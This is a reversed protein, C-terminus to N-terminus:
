EHQQQGCPYAFVTVLTQEPKKESLLLYKELGLETQWYVDMM